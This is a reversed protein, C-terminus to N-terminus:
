DKFTVIAEDNTPIPLDDVAKFWQVMTRLQAVNLQEHAKNLARITLVKNKMAFFEQIKKEQRESEQEEQHRKKQQFASLEQPGLLYRGSAVHLGASYRKMADIADQATQKTKRRNEQLNNGNRADDRNRVEVISDVLSGAVGKSLNLDDPSITAAAPAITTSEVVPTTPLDQEQEGESERSSNTECLAEKRTGCIEPHLLCNYNLPSWGHDAVAKKNTLIRAFSDDWARAVLDVIDKKDIAFEAGQSEKKKM